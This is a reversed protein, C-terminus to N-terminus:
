GTKEIFKNKKYFLNLIVYAALLAWVQHPLIFNNWLFSNKIFDSLYPHILILVTGGPVFFLSLLIILIIIKSRLNYNFICWSLPLILISADYFRHYVPLLMLIMVISYTVFDNNYTRRKYNLLFCAFMLFYLAFALWKIVLNNKVFQSILVHMNVTNFKLIDDPLFRDGGTPGYGNFVREIWLSWSSCLHDGHFVVPFMQTCLLIVAYFMLSILIIPYKKKIVFFLMGFLALQPKLGIAIALFFSSLIIKKNTYFVFTLILFCIVVISLQGLAIGTHFPSFLFMILLFLKINKYMYKKKILSNGLLYMTIIFIIVSIASWIIKARSWSFLALPSMLFSTTPPYIAGNFGKGNNKNKLFKDALYEAPQYPNCGRIWVFSQLYPGTLDASNDISRVPGRM